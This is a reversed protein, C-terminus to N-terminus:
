YSHLATDGDVRLAGDENSGLPTRLSHLRDDLAEVAALRREPMDPIQRLRLHADIELGEDRFVDDRVIRFLVGPGKSSLGLGRVMDPQGSVEVALALGDGPVQGVDDLDWLGLQAPDGEVLDGRGGDLFRELM